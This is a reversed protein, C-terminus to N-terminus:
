DKTAAPKFEENLEQPTVTRDIVRALELIFDVIKDEYIPARLRAAMEPNKQYYEFVQRERGPFRRAEELVGRNLEEATVQINNNRGVESLLLGLRVRRDAISTYERRLEEESKAADEPDLRGEKRDAEVQRWIDQFESDVMGAPVPFRHREALADLLGRKLRVRALARYEAQIQERLRQRLAELNELGMTKALEDDIATELPERIEKVSVTFNAEKGALDANGYDSPFTVEVKRQEGPLAGLLQDEFGPIFTGGGLELHYDEASGGQFETEGLRGVFDIVLIDAQRAPRPEVVPRSHRQRQALGKLTEEIESDPVEVILRELELSSFDMPEIDPLLELAMTYELDEGEAFKAISVKPQMAPRLGRSRITEASSDSVAQDLVEGMVSSGYRKRLLSTPVKGPRFGPLRASAALRTLRESFKREIDAAPVVVKFERKLGDALTETVQM